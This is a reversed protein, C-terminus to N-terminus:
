IKTMSHSIKEVTNSNSLLEHNSFTVTLLQVHINLAMYMNLWTRHDLYALNTVVFHYKFDPRVTTRLCCRWGTGESKYVYTLSSYSFPFFLSM